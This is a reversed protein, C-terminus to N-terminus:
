EIINGAGDERCTVSVMSVQGKGLLSSKLAVSMERLTVM